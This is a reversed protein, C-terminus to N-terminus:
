RKEKPDYYAGAALVREILHRIILAAIVQGSDNMERELARAADILGFPKDDGLAREEVWAARNIAAMQEELIKYCEECYGSNPLCQCTM